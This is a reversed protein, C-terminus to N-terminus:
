IIKYMQVYEIIIENNTEKDIKKDKRKQLIKFGNNEYFKILKENNLTEVLIIRGGVLENANCLTDIAEQLIIDGKIEDWFKDNKGLQGILYISFEKKEKSIGDLKKLTKKSIEEDVIKLISLALTFYALIDKTDKKFILYTRSKNLKEFLIATNKLFLEVDPNKSCSFNNLLNKVKEEDYKELLRKLPVIIGDERVM